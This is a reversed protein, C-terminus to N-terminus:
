FLRRQTTYIKTHQTNNTKNQKKLELFMKVERKLEIKACNENPLSNNLTCVNEKATKTSIWGKGMITLYSETCKKLFNIEASVQKTDLYTTFKPSLEV